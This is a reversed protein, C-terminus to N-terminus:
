QSGIPKFLFLKKSKLEEAKGGGFKSVLSNQLGQWELFDFLERLRLRNRLDLNSRSRHTDLQAFSKQNQRPTPM